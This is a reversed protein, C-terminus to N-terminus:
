LQKEESELSTLSKTEDIYNQIETEIYKEMPLFLEDSYEVFEIDNYVGGFIMKIFNEGLSIVADTLFDWNEMNQLSIQYNRDYEAEKDRALMQRSNDITTIRLTGSADYENTRFESIHNTKVNKSAGIYTPEIGTVQIKDDNIKKVKIKNFDIGIKADMEYTNVVLIKDDYYESTGKYIQESIKKGISQIWNNSEDIKGSNILEHWVKTQSMNAKILAVEAIKEFQNVSAQSAKLLNIEQNLSNVRIEEELIKKEKELIEKEKELNENMLTNNQIQLKINKLEENKETIVINKAKQEVLCNITSVLPITFLVSVGAALVIAVVSCDKLKWIILGIIALLAFVLVGVLLLSASQSIWNIFNMWKM